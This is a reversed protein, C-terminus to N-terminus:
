IKLQCLTLMSIIQNYEYNDLGPPMYKILDKKQLKHQKYAILNKVFLTASYTDPRIPLYYHIIINKQNYKTIVNSNRNIFNNEFKESYFNENARLIILRNAGKMFPHDIFKSFGCSKCLFVRDKPLLKDIYMQWIKKNIDYPVGHRKENGQQSIIIKVNPNKSIVDWVTVFHGRHPPAFCGNFYVVYNIGRKFKYSNHKFEWHFRIKKEMNNGKFKLNFVYRTSNRVM